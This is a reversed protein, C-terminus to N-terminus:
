LFMKRGSIIMKVSCIKCIRYYRDNLNRKNEYYLTSKAFINVEHKKIFTDIQDSKFSNAVTRELNNISSFGKKNKFSHM